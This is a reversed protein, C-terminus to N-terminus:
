WLLRLMSKVDKNAKEVLKSVKGEFKECLVKGASKLIAFREALMPVESASASRFIHAFTEKELKAFFAPSTIPIQEDLARNICACLSWYGTYIQGQYDCAFLEENPEAFFSFNLIDIVFIWELM